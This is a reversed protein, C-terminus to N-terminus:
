RAATLQDNYASAQIVIAGRIARLAHVEYPVPTGNITSLNAPNIRGLPAYFKLGDGAGLPIGDGNSDAIADWNVVKKSDWSRRAGYGVLFYNQVFVMYMPNDPVGDNNRDPNEVPDLPIYSFDGSPYNNPNAWGPEWGNGYNYTFDDCSTPSGTTGGIVFRGPNSANQPTRASNNFELNTYWGVNSMISTSLVNPMSLCEYVWGRAAGAASTVFVEFVNMMPRLNNETARFPNLPYTEIDGDLYLRDWLSRDPQAPATEMFPGKGPTIMLDMRGGLIGASPFIGPHANGITDDCSFSREPIGDGGVCDLVSDIDYAVGPYWGNNKTSFSQLAVDIAHINNTVRMELAAEKVRNYAPLALGILIGIITIVVLLEVLTFACEPKKKRNM